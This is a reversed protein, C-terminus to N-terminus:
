DASDSEDEAQGGNPAAEDTYPPLAMVRDVDDSEGRLAEARRLLRLYACWLGGGVRAGAHSIHRHDLVLQRAM